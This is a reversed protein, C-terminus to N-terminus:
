FLRHLCRPDLHSYVYFVWLLQVATSYPIARLEIFEHAAAMHWSYDLPIVHIGNVEEKYYSFASYRLRSIPKFVM